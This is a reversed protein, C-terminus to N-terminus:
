CFCIVEHHSEDLVFQNMSVSADATVYLQSRGPRDSLFDLHAFVDASIDSIVTIIVIVLFGSPSLFIYSINVLSGILLFTFGFVEFYQATAM